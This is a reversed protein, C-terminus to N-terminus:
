KKFLNLLEVRNQAKCKGYINRVHNRVTHTSLFLKGAIEKMQLGETLYRVIEKERPSLKYEKCKKEFDLFRKDGKKRIVSYIQEEIKKIEKEKAKDRQKLITEIKAKVEEIHFPKVIYDIAGQKLSAIKETRDTRSTLFIFPIDEYGKKNSLNNFFEHGDMTGMMIDSIIIDPKPIDSLRDLAKQGDTAHYVNYKELLSQQLFILLKINDEVILITYKDADYTEKSFTVNNHEIVEKPIFDIFMDKEVPIYKPFKVTFITGKHLTSKVEITGGSSEVITKVLFLGIGLGQGCLETRKIRYYPMFIKNIEDAPIGEGNDKITLSITSTDS